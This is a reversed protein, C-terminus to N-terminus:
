RLPTSGTVFCFDSWRHGVKCTAMHKLEKHKRGIKGTAQNLTKTAKKVKRLTKKSQNNEQKELNTKKKKNEGPSKKENKM